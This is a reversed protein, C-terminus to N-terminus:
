RVLYGRCCIREKTIIKMLKNSFDLQYKSLFLIMSMPRSEKGHVHSFTGQPHRAVRSSVWVWAARSPSASPIGLNLSSVRDWLGPPAEVVGVSVWPFPWSFFHPFGHNLQFRLTIQIFIIPIFLSLGIFLFNLFNWKQM